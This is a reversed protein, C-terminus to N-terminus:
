YGLLSFADSCIGTIIEECTGESNVLGAIQGCMCSGNKVDGEIAAKRLAGAGMAELDEPKTSPDQEMKNFERTMRNKLARVPHGLTKGTVITDRDRASLVKEKYNEHVRCEKATLFRTGMQVACAGLMFAAAMGTEEEQTNQAVTKESKGKCSILTIAVFFTLTILTIRKM